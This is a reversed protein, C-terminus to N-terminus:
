TFRPDEFNGSVHLVFVLKQEKRAQQAAASPTDVFQVSTGFSGCGAEKKILPQPNQIATPPEGARLLGLGLLPALCLSATTRFLLCRM